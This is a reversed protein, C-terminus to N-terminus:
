LTLLIRRIRVKPKSCEGNIVERLGNECVCVPKKSTTVCLHTCNINSCPNVMPKQKSIQDLKFLSPGYGHLTFSRCQKPEILNCRIIKNTSASLSFIDEEFLDLHTPKHIFDNKEFIMKRITGEYNISEITNTKIDSFYLIQRNHDIALGSCHLKNDKLLERMDTGDLNAKYIISSQQEVVPWTLTTFFM